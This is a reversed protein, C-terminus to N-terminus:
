PYVRIFGRKGMKSELKDNEAGAQARQAYPGLWIRTGTKKGRNTDVVTTHPDFGKSSLDDVLRQAGKEDTLLEVQVVWGVDLKAKTATKVKKVTKPTVAVTTKDVKSTDVKSNKDTGTKEAVNETVKKVEATKSSAAVAKQTTLKAPASQTETDVASPKEGTSARGTDSTKEVPNTNSGSVLVPASAKGKGADVPTIKSVYVSEEPEEFDSDVGQIEQLVKDEFTSHQPSQSTVVGDQDVQKSAESPPGLLWPLVLAGFFILVGAGTVRHKLNFSGVNKDSSESTKAM